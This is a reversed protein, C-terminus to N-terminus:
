ERTAGRQSPARASIGLTGLYHLLQSDVEPHTTRWFEALSSRAEPTGIALLAEYADGRVFYDEARDALVRALLPVAPAYRLKGLGAIAYRRRPYDPPQVRTLLLPGIAPGADTIANVLYPEGVSQNEFLTLYNEAMSRAAWARAGAFSGIAALALLFALASRRRGRTFVLVAVLALNLPIAWTLYGNWFIAQCAGRMRQLADPTVPAWVYNTISARLHWVALVALNGITGVLITVKKM